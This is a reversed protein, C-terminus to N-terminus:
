LGGETRPASGDIKSRFAVPAAEVAHRTSRLYLKSLEGDFVTFKVTKMEASAEVLAAAPAAEATVGTRLPRAALFGHRFTEPDITPQTM